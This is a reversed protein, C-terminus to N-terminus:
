SLPRTAAGTAIGIFGSLFGAPFGLDLVEFFGLPVAFAAGALAPAFRVVANFGSGLACDPLTEARGLALGSGLFVVAFSAVPVL